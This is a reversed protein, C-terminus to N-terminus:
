RQCTKESSSRRKAARRKKEKEKSRSRVGRVVRQISIAAAVKREQSRWTSALAGTSEKGLEKELEAKKIVLLVAKGHDDSATVAGVESARDASERAAFTAFAWSKPSTLEDRKLRVTVSVVDGFVKMLDMLASPNQLAASAISHPLGGVWVTKEAARTNSTSSSEERAVSSHRRSHRARSGGGKKKEGESSHRRRARSKKKEGAAAAFAEESPWPAEVPLQAAVVTPAEAFQVSDRADRAEQARAAELARQEQRQKEAYERAGQSPAYLEAGKSPSGQAPAHRRSAKIAAAAIKSAGGYVVAPEGPQEKACAGGM